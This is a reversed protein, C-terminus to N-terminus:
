DDDKDVKRESKIKRRVRRIRLSVAEPTLGLEEAIEKQSFGQATRHIILNDKPDTNVALLREIEERDIVRRLPDQYPHPTSYRGMEPEIDDEEQRLFEKGYHGIEENRFRRYERGFALLSRNVFCTGLSARGQEWADGILYEDIFPGSESYVALYVLSRLNKRFISSPMWDLFVKLNNLRKVLMKERDLSRLTGVGYERLASEYSLAFGSNRGARRVSDIMKQDVYASISEDFEAEDTRRLSAKHQTVGVDSPNNGPGGVSGSEDDSPSRYQV